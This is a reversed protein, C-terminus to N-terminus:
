AVRVVSIKPESCHEHASPLPDLLDGQTPQEIIQGARRHKQARQVPESGKGKRIALGIAPTTASRVSRLFIRVTVCYTRIVVVTAIPKRTASFSTATQCKNAKVSIVAIAQANV